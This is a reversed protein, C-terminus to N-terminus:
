PKEVGRLPVCDLEARLLYAVADPLEMDLGELRDLDIYVRNTAYDDLTYIVDWFHFRHVYHYKFKTIRLM